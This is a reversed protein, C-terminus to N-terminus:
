CQGLYKSKPFSKGYDGTWTTLNPNMYAGINNNIYEETPFDKPSCGVNAANKPQYVRVWDVRMTTPFTLHEFDVTGFNQSMGLNILIYMPEQPVPRASIEVRPDAGMGTSRMTWAINGDSIWTIYANDFGPKYEFGYISTCGEALEYCAQNTQTICSTAQQFAGGTYPNYRTTAQNPIIMNETTNFWAYQANFPAWQASQSVGGVGESIEAEFMDIEPASRGVFSGDKHNPGPHEEGLCTCRSLKQGPLYSLAGQAIPDGNTTAQYPQGDLTQNPATGVDCADYTYPWQLVPVLNGMSWVAPWLGVVNNAGPLVVSAELLGGTFCFKNWSSLMGGQYQMGHTEMRSLTIELYGDGTTVAAPDYWELNNTAWYHLDVAEWYPDDGPYFSRGETNFEDSFVLQLQEKSNTYSTKTLVETPTEHDILGFNGMLSPIQGSANIGGLNFGGMRSPKETTFHSILPYGAFLALLGTCMVIMCGLNTLGRYTFLHGGHDNKRDRRPDPNHLYDDAEPHDPSLNSGWTTPDPSLSFRWRRSDGQSNLATTPRRSPQRSQLRGRLHAQSCM